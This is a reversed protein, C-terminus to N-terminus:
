TFTVEREREREHVCMCVVRFIVFRLHLYKKKFRTFIKIALLLPEWTQSGPFGSYGRVHPHLSRISHLIDSVNFTKLQFDNGCPHPPWVVPVAPILIWPFFFISSRQRCTMKGCPPPPLCTFFPAGVKPAYFAPFSNLLPLFVKWGGRREKM